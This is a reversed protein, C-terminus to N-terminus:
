ALLADIFRHVKLAEAGSIRPERNQEILAKLAAPDAIETKRAGKVVVGKIQKSGLVAGLGGRGLDVAEGAGEADADVVLGDVADEVGHVGADRALIQSPRHGDM